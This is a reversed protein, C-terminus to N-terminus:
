YIRNGRVTDVTWGSAGRSLTYLWTGGSLMGRAQEGEARVFADDWWQLSEVGVVYAKEGTAVVTWAACQSIPYANIRQERLSAVLRTDPDYRGTGDSRGYVCFVTPKSAGEDGPMAVLDQVIAHAILLEQESRWSRSHRCGMLQAGSLVITCLFTLDRRTM